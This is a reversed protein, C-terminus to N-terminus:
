TKLYESFDGGIDLKRLHMKEVYSVHAIELWPKNYIQTYAFKQSIDTDQTVPYLRKYAKSGFEVNAVSAYLNEGIEFILSGKFINRTWGDRPDGMFDGNDILIMNHIFRKRRKNM